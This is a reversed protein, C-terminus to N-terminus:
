GAIFYYLGFYIVLFTAIVIADSEIAAWNKKKIFLQYLLYGVFLLPAVFLRVFVLLYGM